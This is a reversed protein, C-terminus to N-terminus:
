VLPHVLIILTLLQTLNGLVLSIQNQNPYHLFNHFENLKKLVRSKPRFFSGAQFVDPLVSGVMGWLIPHALFNVHNTLLAGAVIIALSIDFYILGIIKNFYMKRLSKPTHGAKPINGDRHPLMDLFYHSFFGLLFSVFSNDIYSGILVGAAAHITLYM